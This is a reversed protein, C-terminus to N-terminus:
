KDEMAKRRKTEAEEACLAHKLETWDGNQYYAVEYGIAKKCHRCTLAALRRTEACDAHECGDACPGHENEARPAPLYGAAM